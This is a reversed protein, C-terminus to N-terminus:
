DGRLRKIIEADTEAPSMIKSLRELAFFAREMNKDSIPGDYVEGFDGRRAATTLYNEATMPIKTEPDIYSGKVRAEAIPLFGIKREKASMLAVPKYEAPDYDDDFWLTDRDTFAKDVMLDLLIKRREDNTLARGLSKQEQQTLYDMAALASYYRQQHEDTRGTQPITGARVLAAQVLQQNNMGAPLVIPTESDEQAKITSQEEKLRAWMTPTFSMKWAANELTVATKQDRPISTWLAYSMGPEPKGDKGTPRSYVNFTGFERGEMAANYQDNLAKQQYGHLLRWKEGAMKEPNERNTAMASGLIMIENRVDEKEGRITTAYARSIVGLASRVGPELDRSRRRVEAGVKAPDQYELRIEDWVEYAETQTDDQENGKRTNELMEVREDLPLFDAISGSGEGKQIQEQTIPTGQGKAMVISRELVIEREKPDMTILRKRAVTTVFGQTAAEYEPPTLFGRELLSDAHSMYAFMGDQATQADKAVLIAAQLEEGQRAFEGLNWDIEKTRANDGVAVTGRANMLRAEADFLGRDRKSRVTPFLREYHGKMAKNYRETQTAFDQDDELKDREQIDAILYENKAHSYSLADDKQKHEIAMNVFTGAARELAEAVAM